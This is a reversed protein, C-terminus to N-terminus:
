GEVKTLTQEITAMKDNLVLNEETTFTAPLKVRTTLTLGLEKQASEIARNLLEKKDASLAKSSADVLRNQIGRARSLLMVRQGALTRLNLRGIEVQVSQMAKDALAAIDKKDELSVLASEDTRAKIFIMQTNLDKELDLSRRLDHARLVMLARAEASTALRRSDKLFNSAKQQSDMQALFDKLSIKNLAGATDNIESITTALSLVVDFQYFDDCTKPRIGANKYQLAVSSAEVFSREIAQFGQKAQDLIGKHSDPLRSSSILNKLKSYSDYLSNYAKAFEKSASQLSTLSCVENKERERRYEDRLLQLGPTNNQLDLRNSLGQLWSGLNAIEDKAKQAQRSLEAIRPQFGIFTSQYEQSYTRYERIFASVTNELAIISKKESELASKEKLAKSLDDESFAVSASLGLIAIQILKLVSM